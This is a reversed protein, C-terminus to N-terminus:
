FLKQNVEELFWRTLRISTARRYEATSYRDTVPTIQQNLESIILSITKETLPLKRGLIGVEFGRHRFLQNGLSGFCLRIDALIGKTTKALGCFTLSGRAQSKKRAIKRFIQINWTGVPIRIRTLIYGRPILFRQKEAKQILESFSIWMSRQLSRLELTADMAYLVTLIGSFPSGVHINGGITALQRITPVATM